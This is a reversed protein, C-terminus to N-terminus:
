SSFGAQRALVAELEYPLPSGFELREGTRPHIISLINAHLFLRPAIHEEQKRGYIPDGVVPHGSAALHVRIQHTRGTIPKIELFTTEPFSKLVQFFTVAPKPNRSRISIKWGKTMHRGLPWDFKGEQAAFRGWVLTLYTKRVLRRKFQSTLSRYADVSRAVVMVGSTDRDLRHVIGPRDPRGVGAVEPFRFLVANALTGSLVGAGPHVVLGSQKDIVIIDDDSYIIKLPIDEPRMESPEPEVTGEVEVMENLRLRYGPKRVVGCVRVRGAEIVQQVKSRTVGSLRFSLFVDLRM